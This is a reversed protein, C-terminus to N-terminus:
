TVQCGSRRSITSDTFHMRDLHGYVILIGIIGGAQLSHEILVGKSLVQEWPSNGYIVGVGRVRASAHDCPPQELM